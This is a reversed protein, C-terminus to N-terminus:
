MIIHDSPMILGVKQINILICIQLDVYRDTTEQEDHGLSNKVKFLDYSGSKIKSEILRAIACWHRMM